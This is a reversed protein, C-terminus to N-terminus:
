GIPGGFSGGGHEHPPQSTRTNMGPDVREADAVNCASRGRAEDDIRHRDGWALRRAKRGVVGRRRRSREDVIWGYVLLGAIAILAWAWLPM